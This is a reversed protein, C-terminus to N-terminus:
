LKECKLGQAEYESRYESLTEPLKDSKLMFYAKSFDTIDSKRATLNFLLQKELISFKNEYSGSDVNLAQLGLNFNAHSRAEAVVAESQSEFTMLNKISLRNLETEGHFIATIKLESETPTPTFSGLKEYIKEKTECVLSIDKENDPYRGSTTTKGRLLWLIILVIIIIFLLVAALKLVKHNNKEEKNEQPKTEAPASPTTKKKEM